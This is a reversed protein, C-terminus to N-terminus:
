RVIQRLRTSLPGRLASEFALLQDKMGLAIALVYFQEISPLQKGREIAWITDSSMHFDCNVALAKSLDDASDMGARVRRAKLERGFEVKDLVWKTTKKEGTIQRDEERQEHENM